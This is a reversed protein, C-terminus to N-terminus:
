VATFDNASIPKLSERTRYSNVKAVIADTFVLEEDLQWRGGALRALRHGKKTLYAVPDLKPAFATIPADSTKPATTNKPAASSPAPAKAKALALGFAAWETVPLKITFSDEEQNLTSCGYMPTDTRPFGPPAIITLRVGGRAIKGFAKVTGQEVFRFRMKGADEETGIDISLQKDINAGFKPLFTEALVFTATVSEDKRKKTAVSVMPKGTTKRVAVPPTYTEWGM